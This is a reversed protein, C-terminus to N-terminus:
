LHILYIWRVKSDTSVSRESRIEHTEHVYVEQGVLSEMESVIEEIDAATSESMEHIQFLLKVTSGSVEIGFALTSEPILGLSAQVAQAVLYNEWVPARGPDDVTPLSM